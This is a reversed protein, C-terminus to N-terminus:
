PPLTHRHRYTRSSPPPSFSSSSSSSSSSSASSSNLLLTHYASSSHFLTLSFILLLVPCLSFFQFWLTHRHRHTQTHTHPPPFLLFLLLLLRFRFFFLFSSLSDLLLYTIFFFPTLSPFFHLLFFLAVSWIVFHRFMLEVFRRALAHVGLFMSMRHKLFDVRQLQILSLSWLFFFFASTFLILSLIYFLLYLMFSSHPPSLFFPLLSTSPFSYLPLVLM